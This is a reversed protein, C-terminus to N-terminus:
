LCTGGLNYTHDIALPSMNLERDYMSRSNWYASYGLLYKMMDMSEQKTQDSTFFEILKLNQLNYENHVFKQVMEEEKLTDWRSTREGYVDSFALVQYPIKVRQCFWILNYLQKLTSEM